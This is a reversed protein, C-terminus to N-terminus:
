QKNVDKQEGTVLNVMTIEGNKKIYVLSGAYYEKGYRIYDELLKEPSKMILETNKAKVRFDKALKIADRARGEDYLIITNKRTYVIRIKQRTLANM